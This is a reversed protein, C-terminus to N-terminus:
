EKDSPLVGTADLEDYLQRMTLAIRGRWRTDPKPLQNANKPEEPADQNLKEKILAAADIVLRSTLELETTEEAAKAVLAKHKEIAARAASKEDDTASETALMLQHPRMDENMAKWDWSGVFADWIPQLKGATAFTMPRDAIERLLNIRQAGLVEVPFTREKTTRAKTM